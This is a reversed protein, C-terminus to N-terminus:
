GRSHGGIPATELADDSGRPGLYTIIVVNDSSRM